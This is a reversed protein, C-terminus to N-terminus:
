KYNQSVYVLHDRLLDAPCRRQPTWQLCERIITRVNEGFREPINAILTDLTGRNIDGKNIHEELLEGNDALKKGLCLEYGICGVAWIDSMKTISTEGNLRVEPAIYRYTGPVEKPQNNM